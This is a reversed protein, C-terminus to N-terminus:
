WLSPVVVTGSELRGSFKSYLIVINVSSLLVGSSPDTNARSNPYAMSVLPM